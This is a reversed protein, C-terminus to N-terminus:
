YNLKPRKLIRYTTNLLQAIKKKKKKLFTSPFPVLKLSELTTVVSYNYSCFKKKNKAGCM